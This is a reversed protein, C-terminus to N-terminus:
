KAEPEFTKTTPAKGNLFIVWNQMKRSWDVIHQRDELSIKKSFNFRGTHVYYTEELVYTGATRLIEKVQEEGESDPDGDIFLATYTAKDPKLESCFRRVRDEPDGNLTLGILVLREKDCPYAPPIDNVLCGNAAGIAEAYTVMKGKKTAYMVRMKM